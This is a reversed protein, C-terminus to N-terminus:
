PLNAFYTLILRPNLRLQQLSVSYPTLVIPPLACFYLDTQSLHSSSPFSELVHIFIPRRKPSRCLPNSHLPMSKHFCTPLIKTPVGLPFSQRQSTFPICKSNRNWLIIILSPLLSKNRVALLHSTCDPIPFGNSREQVSFTYRIMLVFVHKLYFM